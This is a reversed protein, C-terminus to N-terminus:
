DQSENTTMLSATLDTAGLLQPKIPMIEFTATIGTADLLSTGPTWDSGSANQIYIRGLEVLLPNPNLDDVAAQAANLTAYAAGIQVPIEDDDALAYLIFAGTKGNAIATQEGTPFAVNAKGTITLATGTGLVGVAAGYTFTALGTDLAFSAMVSTVYPANLFNYFTETDSDTQLRGNSAHGWEWESTDAEIMLCAIPVDGENPADPMPQALAAIDTGNTEAASAVAFGVSATKNGFTWIVGFKDSAITNGTGLIASVDAAADAVATFYRGAYQCVVATGTQLDQANGNEALDCGASAVFEVNAVSAQPNALYARITELDVTIKNLEEYFVRFPDEVSTGATQGSLISWARKVVRTIGAM